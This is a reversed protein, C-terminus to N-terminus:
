LRVVDTVVDSKPMRTKNPMAVLLKPKGRLKIDSYSLTLRPRSRFTLLNLGLFFPLIDM